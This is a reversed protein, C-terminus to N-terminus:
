HFSAIWIINIKSHLHAYHSPTLVRHIWRGRPGGQTAASAAAQRQPRRGARGGCLLGAPPPREDAARHPGTRRSHEGAAHRLRRVVRSAVASFLKLYFLPM